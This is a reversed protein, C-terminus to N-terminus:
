LVPLVMKRKISPHLRWMEPVESLQTFGNCPVLVFVCTLRELSFAQRTHRVFVCCFKLKASVSKLSSLCVGFALRSQSGVEGLEQCSRRANDDKIVAVGNM